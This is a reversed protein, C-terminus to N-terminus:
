SIFASDLSKSDWLIYFAIIESSINSGDQRVLLRCSVIEDIIKQIKREVEGLDIRHGLIKVQRDKRNYYHLVKNTFFRFGVVIYEKKETM